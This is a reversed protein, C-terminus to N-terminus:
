KSEFLDESKHRLLNFVTGELSSEIPKSVRDVRRSIIIIPQFSIEISFSILDFGLIEVILIGFFIVEEEHKPFKVKLIEGIESLGYFVHCVRFFRIYLILEEPYPFVGFPKVFKM